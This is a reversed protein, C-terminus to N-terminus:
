PDRDTMEVVFILIGGAILQALPPDALLSGTAQALFIWTASVLITKITPM